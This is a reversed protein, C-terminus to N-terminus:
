VRVWEKGKKKVVILEKGHKREWVKKVLPFRENAHGKVDIVEERGDHFTVKFDAKYTWAQRGKKGTGSCYKCNILRDTKPSPSKGEGLCKSCEVEFAKLLTYKPQLTIHSIDKDKLLHEYYEAETKSHFTIGNVITQRSKIKGL